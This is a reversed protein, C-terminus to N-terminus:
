SQNQGGSLRNADLAIPSNPLALRVAPHQSLELCIQKWIQKTEDEDKGRPWDTVSTHRDFPRNDRIVRLDKEKLAYVPVDARGYIRSRGPQTGLTQMGIAWIDQDVLGTSHVVSLEKHPSPNFAAPKPRLDSVRMHGRSYIFRAVLDNQDLEGSVADEPVPSNARNGQSGPVIWSLCRLLLRLLFRM